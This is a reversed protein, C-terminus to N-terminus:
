CAVGADEQVEDNEADKTSDRVKDVVGPDGGEERLLLAAALTSLARLPRGLAGLLNVGSVLDGNNTSVAGSDGRARLCVILAPDRRRVQLAGLRLANATTGGLGLGSDLQSVTYPHPSSISHLPM